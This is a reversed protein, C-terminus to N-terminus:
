DSEDNDDLLPLKQTSNRKRKISILSKYRKRKPRVGLAGGRKIAQAGKDLLRETGEKGREMFSEKIDRGGVIDSAIQVGTSLAEKGVAKGVKKAIPFVLRMLGKFLSGLGSGRQYPTGEFGSLGHGSQQAQAIYFNAWDSESLPVYM